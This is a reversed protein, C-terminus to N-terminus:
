SRSVLKVKVEEAGLKWEEQICLISNSNWFCGLPFKEDEQKDGGM